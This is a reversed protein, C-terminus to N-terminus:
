DQASSLELRNWHRRIIELRRQVTRRSWKMRQAIEDDTHGEMRLLVVQQLSPDGLSQFLCGCTEVFEAALEPTPERSALLDTGARPHKDTSKTFVADSVNRRVDRCHRQDHRQRDAVKRVTITLLLSWLSDRDHLDPFRGAAIGTCLSHFASLAADEEDYVRRTEPRLKRRAADCIRSVFHDWLKQAAAADAVRLDDMWLTIPNDSLM